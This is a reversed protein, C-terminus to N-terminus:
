PQGLAKRIDAVIENTFELYLRECAYPARRGKKVNCHQHSLLKNNQLGRGGAARAVVHDFNSQTRRIELPARTNAKERMLLDGCYPCRAYQALWYTRMIVPFLGWLRKNRLLNVCDILRRRAKIKM